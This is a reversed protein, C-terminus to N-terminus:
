QGWLFPVRLALGSGASVDWGSLDGNFALAEAFVYSMDRVNRVDWGAIPGYGPHAYEPGGAALADRVAARITADTLPPPPPPPPPPVYPVGPPWLGTTIPARFAGDGPTPHAAASSYRDRLAEWDSRLLPTRDLPDNARGPVKAWEWLNAADYVRYKYSGDANKAASEPFPLRFTANDDERLALAPLDDQTLLEVDGEEKYNNAEDPPLAYFEGTPAGRARRPRAVLGAALVHDLRSRRQAPANVVPRLSM